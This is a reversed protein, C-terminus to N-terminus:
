VAYCTPDTILADTFGKRRYHCASCTGCARDGVPDYCSHTLSYDVGLAIGERIIEAKSMNVLPAHITLRLGNMTSKTALNAMTEFADIYVRRCDPYGSYDHVNAGFFIDFAGKVEAYALALSLMITNRAPVYTAPVIQQDQEDHRSVPIDETLSSGGFLRLNLEIIKHEKLDFYEVVRKAANLEVKNRQGYFITLPFPDFGRAKAIALTTTSDLGGSLLIIAPKM